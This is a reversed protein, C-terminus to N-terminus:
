RPGAVVTRLVQAVSCAGAQVVTASQEVLNQEAMQRELEKLVQWTWVAMARWGDHGSGVALVQMAYNGMEWAWGQPLLRM